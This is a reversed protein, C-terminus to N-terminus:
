YWHQGIKSFCNSTELEFFLSKTCCHLKRFTQFISKKFLFQQHHQYWDIEKSFGLMKIYLKDIYSKLVFLDGNKKRPLWPRVYRRNAAWGKDLIGPLPWCEQRKCLRGPDIGQMPLSIKLIGKEGEGGEPPWWVKRKLILVRLLWRGMLPM